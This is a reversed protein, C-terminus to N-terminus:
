RTVLTWGVWTNTTFTYLHLFGSTRTIRLNRQRRQVTVQENPSCTTSLLAIQRKDHWLTIFMSGKQLQRMDGNNLKIGKQRGGRKTKYVDSYRNARLTGCCYTGKRLLEELLHLSMFFNDFYLHRNTSHFPESLHLVVRTGLAGEAESKGLYIDFTCVYGSKSEGLM